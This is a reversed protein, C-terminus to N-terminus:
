EDNENENENEGPSEDNTDLNRMLSLIASEEDERMDLYTEFQASSRGATRMIDPATSQSRKMEM